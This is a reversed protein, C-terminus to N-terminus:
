VRFVGSRLEEFGEPVEASPVSLDVPIELHAVVTARAYTVHATKFHGASEISPM